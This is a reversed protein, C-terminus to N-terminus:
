TAEVTPIRRPDADGASVEPLREDAFQESVIKPQGDGSQNQAPARMAWALRGRVGPRKSIPGGRQGEGCKVRRDEEVQAPKQIGYSQCGDEAVTAEYQGQVEQLPM